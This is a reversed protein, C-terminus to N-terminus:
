FTAMEFLRERRIIIQNTHDKSSNFILEDVSIYSIISLLM